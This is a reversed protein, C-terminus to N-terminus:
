IVRKAGIFTGGYQSLKQTQVKGKSSSAHIFTDGGLYIGVHDVVGSYKRSSADFFLLDGAKLNGKSVKVGNSYMGEASRGLKVGFNKYVYDIFGSCDFGTKPSAGGYVYKVGIFKKAYSIVKGSISSESKILATNAISRSTNDTTKSTSINATVFKSSVYGAQSGVKVKNWGNAADLITVSANKNLAKILKGKTSPSKRFNVGNANIKGSTSTLKVYDDNVWGIKSNQSIKYWGNSKDLVSVRTNSLKTIIGASTTPAKRVKVDTGTIKAPVAAANGVSSILTLSFAVSCAAFVKNIKIM